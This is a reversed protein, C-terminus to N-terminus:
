EFSVRSISQEALESHTWKEAVRNGDSVWRFQSVFFLGDRQQKLHGNLKRNEFRL